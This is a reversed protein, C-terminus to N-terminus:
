RVFKQALERALAAPAGPCARLIDEDNLEIFPKQTQRLQLTANPHYSMLEKVYKEAALYSPENSLIGLQDRSSMEHSFLTALGEEFVNTVHSPELLHIVEHALQFLARNPETAATETLMISILKENFPFWVHPIPGSFEIGLVTWEMNRQGHQREAERLYEGLKQTLTYTYGGHGAENRFRDTCFGFAPKLNSIIAM